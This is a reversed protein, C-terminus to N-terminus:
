CPSPWVYQYIASMLQSWPWQSLRVCQWNWHFALCTNLTEAVTLKEFV